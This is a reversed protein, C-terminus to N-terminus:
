TRSATDINRTLNQATSHLSIFRCSGLSNLQNKIRDYIHVLLSTLFFFFPVSYWWYKFNCCMVLCHCILLSASEFTKHIVVYKNLEFSQSYYRYVNLKTHNYMKKCNRATVRHTAQNIQALPSHSFPFLACLLWSETGCKCYKGIEISFNVWLLPVSFWMM